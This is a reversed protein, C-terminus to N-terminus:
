YGYRSYTPRTRASSAAAAIVVVAGIAAAGILGWKAIKGGDGAPPQSLSVLDPTELKVGKAKAEARLATVRGLWRDYDEATNIAARGQAHWDDYKPSLSSEWYPWLPSQKAKATAARVRATWAADAVAPNRVTAPDVGMSRYTANVIAEMETDIQRFAADADFEVGVVSRWAARPRCAYGPLRRAGGYEGRQNM